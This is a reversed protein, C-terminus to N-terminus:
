ARLPVVNAGNAKAAREEIYDAIRQAEPYLYGLRETELYHRATVTTPLHGTLLEVKTFDIGCQAIGITTTTRRLDHATVKTGAVKSVKTMLDRPSVIHGSKSWTTFVWPSGEVRERTKLLEVLQTSCPFWFSNRNKADPVHWWCAAPDDELHVHEWRLSAAENLRCGTLMLFSVLDIGALSDRTYAEARWAQLASWVAGVRNDPIRSTRPKLEVWDDRLGDVPNRPVLPSGDARRYQRGAYNLLAKLVSLSQNAQGPSGGKRDGHLGKTMLKRYLKRCGDETISVVPKHQWQALTTTVHREIQAASSAKLKGPRAMYSDAVDRLTVEMAEQHKREDRPDVGERMRQLVRRAKDRAEAETLEGLPGLTLNVQRGRVRGTAVFVRKGKPHHKSPASCRLGFGKVASDHGGDWHIEYGTAPPEIKDIYAKTLKPMTM